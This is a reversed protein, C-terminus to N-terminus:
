NKITESNNQSQINKHHLLLYVLSCIASIIGMIVLSLEYGTNMILVGMLLPGMINGVREWFRFLGMGSGVGMKKIIALETVLSTQSSVSFAHSLGIMLVIIVLPTFGTYFYFFIMSLGTLMGGIFINYKRYQIKKRYKSIVPGMLILVMGYGMIVRGITGQAVDISRLYLPVYYFLVGILIIKAPIAQFFTLTVFEKDKLVAFFYEFSFPEKKQCNTVMMTDKNFIALLYILAFISFVASVFFVNAYGIRNALMGGIVTGCIDGSFYAAVFAAMGVTRNHTTTNEYVFQQSAVLVIGFGIGSVSRFIILQLIDRSLATLILGATNLIIGTILPKFWGKSDCFSGALPMSMAFFFMFISIPLGLVLERSLGFLPEYLSDVLMPLFSISFSQAMIFYFILPRVYPYLSVQRASSMESADGPGAHPLSLTKTFNSMQNNMGALNQKLQEISGKFNSPMKRTCSHDSALIRDIHDCQDTIAKSFDQNMRPSWKQMLQFTSIQKLYRIMFDNFRSILQNLENMLLYTRGPLLSFSNTARKMQKEVTEIPSTISFTVFLSLFEFTMLISVIIVTTIDFLVERLKTRIPDLSLRLNIYGVKTRKKVDYLPLSIDTQIEPIYGDKKKQFIDSPKEGPNNKIMTMHDAYYLVFGQDDTIEIYEMETAADLVKKLTKELKILKTLPINLGLVAEIDNKLFHGLKMSKIQMSELYSKQFSAMNKQSYFIQCVIIVCISILAVKIRLNM